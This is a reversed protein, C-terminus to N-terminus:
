RRMEPPVLLLDLKDEITADKSLRVRELPEKPLRRFMEQKMDEIVARFRPDRSLDRFEDPDNKVDYLRARQHVPALGTAYGDKRERNGTTYILKYGDARIMAEENELYESFVSERHRSTKGELLGVM